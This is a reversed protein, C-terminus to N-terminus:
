DIARPWFGACVAWSLCCGLFGLVILGLAEKATKQPDVVPELIVLPDASVLDYHYEADAIAQRFQFSPSTTVRVFTPPGDQFRSDLRDTSQLWFKIPQGPEWNEDLVPVMRWTKTEDNPAWYEGLWETRPRYSGIRFPTQGEGALRTFLNSFRSAELPDSGNQSLSYTDPLRVIAGDGFTESLEAEVDFPKDAQHRQNGTPREYGAVEDLSFKSVNVLVLAFLMTVPMLWATAMRVSRRTEAQPFARMLLWLELAPIVIVLSLAALDILGYVMGISLPIFGVVHLGLWFRRRAAWCKNKLALKAADPHSPFPREPHLLPSKLTAEPLRKSPVLLRCVPYLLIPIAAVSYLALIWMTAGSLNWGSEPREAVLRVLIAQNASKLDFREEANVVAQRFAAYHTNRTPIQCAVQHQTLGGESLEHEDVIAWIRVERQPEWDESELPAAYYFKKVNRTVQYEVAGLYWVFPAAEPIEFCSEDPLALADNISIVGRFSGANANASQSQISVVSACFPSALVSLGLGLLFMAKAFKSHPAAGVVSTQENWHALYKCVYIDPWVAGIAFWLGYAQYDSTFFWLALGCRAVIWFAAMMTLLLIRITIM